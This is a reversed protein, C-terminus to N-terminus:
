TPKHRFIIISRYVNAKYNHLKPDANYYHNAQPLLARFSVLKAGMAFSSTQTAEWERPKVATSGCFSEGEEGGGGNAV